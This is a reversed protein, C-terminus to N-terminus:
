NEDVVTQVGAAESVTVVTLPSLRACPKLSLKSHFFAVPGAHSWKRVGAAPITRYSAQSAQSHDIM